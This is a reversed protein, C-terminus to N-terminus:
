ADRTKLLKLTKLLGSDESEGRRWWQLSVTPKAEQFANRHGLSSRGLETQAAIQALLQEGHVTRFNRLTLKGMRPRLHNKWVDKCQKLTAARLKKEVADV